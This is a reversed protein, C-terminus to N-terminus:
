HIWLCSLSSDPLQLAQAIKALTSRRPMATSTFFRDLYPRPVGIKAALSSLGGQRSVEALLGTKFESIHHAIADFSEPHLSPRQQPNEPADLLDDLCEQLDALLTDREQPDTEVFWMELLDRVGEDHHSQEMVATIFINSLGESCLAAFIEELSLHEVGRDDHSDDFLVFERM